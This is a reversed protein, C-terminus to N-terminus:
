STKAENQEFISRLFIENVIVFGQFGLEQSHVFSCINFISNM